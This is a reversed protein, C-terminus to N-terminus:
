EYYCDGKDDFYRSLLKASYVLLPSNQLTYIRNGGSDLGFFLIEPFIKSQRILNQRLRGSDPFMESSGLKFFAIRYSLTLIPFRSLPIYSSSFIVSTAQTRISHPPMTSKRVATKSCPRKHQHIRFMERHQIRHLPTATHRNAATPM